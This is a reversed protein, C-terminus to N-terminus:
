VEEMYGKYNPDDRYLQEMEKLKEKLEPIAETLRKSENIAHDLQAQIACIGCWRPLSSRMRMQNLSDLSGGWIIYGNREGCNQCKGKPFGVHQIMPIYPYYGRDVYDRADTFCENQTRGAVVIEEKYVGVWINPFDKTLRDYNNEFWQRDKELQKHDIKDLAELAKKTSEPLEVDPIDLRDNKKM